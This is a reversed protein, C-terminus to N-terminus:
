SLTSTSEVVWVSGSCTGHPAGDNGLVTSCLSLAFGVVWLRLAEELTAPLPAVSVVNWSADECDCASPSSGDGAFDFLGLTANFCSCPSSNPNASPKIALRWSLVTGARLCPRPRRLGLCTSFCLLGMETVDGIEMGVAVSDEIIFRGRGVVGVGAAAGSALRTGGTADTEESPGGDFAGGVELADIVM